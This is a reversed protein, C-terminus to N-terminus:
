CLPSSEHPWFRVMMAFGVHLMILVTCRCHHWDRLDVGDEGFVATNASEYDRNVPSDCGAAGICTVAILSLVPQRM